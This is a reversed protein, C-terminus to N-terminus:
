QSSPVSAETEAVPAAGEAPTSAEAAVVAPQTQFALKSPWWNWRGLLAVISPVLLTRVLFTDLLIGIAISIGLQHLQETSGLLGAVGFTAALILGASTVTTGTANVARTIADKLSGKATEERIRSMVLINYDEGLAMLFIFMLFPLVFDLGADGGFRMFILVSIGLTAGFSLVVSIVLYLPAVLSRMVVGLLLAILVLVVPVIHALDTDSASSVDYAVAAQGSVGSDVAGVSQAVQSVAQRIAPVAQLAQTSAPDGAALTTYFAVTRGDASIFQATARYANYEQAPLTVSAPEVPPLASPPGLKAYLTELQTPQIATGNPNLPGSVSRFQSSASLQQEAQQVVSLNDWVSASFQLLVTTPRAVAAPYHANIAATGNASDSGSPGTTTGAFGAPAYGFAAISLAGFLIVGIILTLVPRRVVQGAIQGWAGPKEAGPTLKMPWFTARGFIALLAPLLTLAALLMLAIGIALSPGLGRYIGFTALLLCLLAGIVTGASFTISEGVHEVAEIVAQRTTLGRRMEEHVRLILFLGYDTGAGLILVTLITQTVGSVPLGATSAQAIVPGALLLVLVAPALTILPALAARFVLLLMVLIALDSLLSTLRQAHQSAQQNDINTPLQGTLDVSLGQPLQNASVTSRISDVVSSAQSSTPLLNVTILAKRAAGDSSLGQDRVSTVHAVNKVANEIATFATQDDATLQGDSRVAVLVATSGSNPQFPSALQAAHRSPATGPLFSSNDSNAVSSLSPFSYICIGAIVVWLAIVLYRYRVSFRGIFSFIIM